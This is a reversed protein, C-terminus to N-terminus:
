KQLLFKNNTTKKNKLTTRRTFYWWAFSAGALLAIGLLLDELFEM